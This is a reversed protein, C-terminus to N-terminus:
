RHKEDDHVWIKSCKCLNGKGSRPAIITLNGRCGVFPVANPDNNGVCPACAGAEHKVEWHGGSNDGTGDDRDNGDGQGGLVYDFGGKVSVVIKIGAM